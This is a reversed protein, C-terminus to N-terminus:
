SSPRPKKIVYQTQLTQLEPHQTDDTAVATSGRGAFATGSSPAVAGLKVSWQYQLSNKITVIDDFDKAVYVADKTFYRITTFRRELARKQDTRDLVRTGKRIIWEYWDYPHINTTVYIYEPVLHVHDGKVPVLVPMRDLVRLLNALPMQGVFDDIVVVSHFAPKYEDWWVSGNQSTAVFHIQKRPHSEMVTRSKGVGTPGIHLIVKPVPKAVNGEEDELPLYQLMKLLRPYRAVQVIHKGIIQRMSNGALVDDRFIELDKRQGRKSHVYTGFEVPAEIRTDDKMCYERADDTDGARQAEWHAQPLLAKCHSLYQRKEFQIYGQFHQRGTDPCQELQYVSYTV